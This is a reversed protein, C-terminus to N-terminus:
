PLPPSVLPSLWCFLIPNHIEDIRELQAVGVASCLEPIRYNFGILQHRKFSFHQIQDKIDENTVPKATLTRYGLDAIKRCSEAVKEDNTIVMGGDGTTLHKSRQFSFISVDGFTGALRGNCEGLVCQANDEIVKLNHKAAIQNIKM